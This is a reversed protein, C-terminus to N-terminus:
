RDSQGDPAAAHQEKALLPRRMRCSIAAAVRDRALKSAAHRAVLRVGDVIERFSPKRREAVAVGVIRDCRALGVRAGVADGRHVFFPLFPVKFVFRHVIEYDGGAGSFLVVDGPRLRSRDDALAVGDGLQITPAM